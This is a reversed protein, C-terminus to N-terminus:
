WCLLDKIRIPKFDIVEMSINVFNWNRAETLDYNYSNSHTHGHINFDIKEHNCIKLLEDIRNNLITRPVKVGDVKNYRYEQITAPYHSLLCTQKDIIVQISSFLADQCEAIYVKNNEIKYAGRVVHDFQNYTNPGKKDHNGLILIKIGNLRPVIERHGKFALDGTHIVIDDSQVVANWRKIIWETHELNLAETEDDNLNLAFGDDRMSALRGPQWKLIGDHNFHTDSIIFTDGDIKCLLKNLETNFM